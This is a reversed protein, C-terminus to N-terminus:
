VNRDYGNQGGGRKSQRNDDDFDDDNLNAYPDDMSRAHEEVRKKMKRQMEDFDVSGSTYKRETYRSNVNARGSNTRRPDGNRSDTGM